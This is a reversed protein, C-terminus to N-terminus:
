SENTYIDETNIRRLEGVLEINYDKDILNIIADLPTTLTLDIYYYQSHIPLPQATTSTIAKHMKKKAQHMGLFNLIEM